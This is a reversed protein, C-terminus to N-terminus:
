AAVDPASDATREARWEQVVRLADRAELEEDTVGGPPGCRAGLDSQAVQHALQVAESATFPFSAGAGLPRDHVAVAEVVARPFGWLSLLYAGARGHTIECGRAEIETLGQGEHEPLDSSLGSFDRRCTALALQGCEKVMGACFADGVEDQRALRGALRGTELAQHNLRELWGPAVMDAVRPHQADERKPVVARVVHLGLRAVADDANAVWTGGSFFASNALQLVKVTLAVDREVVAAVAETGVEPTELLELLEDLTGTPTPLATLAGIEARAPEGDLQDRMWLVREIADTLRPTDCPKHLFQHAITVVELLDDADAHGSLVLRATDPFLRRVTGLLQQGDMEPMRFDSVVVDVPTTEMLALATRGSDAFLLEWRSRQGRLARRVGDLVRQEDDVFLIRHM